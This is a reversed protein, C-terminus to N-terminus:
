LGALNSLRVGVHVGAVAPERRVSAERADVLRAKRNKNLFYVAKLTSSSKKWRWHNAKQPNQHGQLHAGSAPYSPSNKCRTMTHTRAVLPLMVDERFAAADTPGTRM